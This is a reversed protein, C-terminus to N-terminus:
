ETLQSWTTSPIEFDTSGNNDVDISVTVNDGGTAELLLASTGTTFVIEGSELLGSEISLKPETVLHIDGFSSHEASFDLGLMYDDNAYDTITQYSIDSFNYSSESNDSATVVYSLNSSTLQDKFTQNDFDNSSVVTIDGNILNTAGSSVPETRELNTLTAHQTASWDIDFDNFDSLSGTDMFTQLTVDGHYHVDNQVCNDYNIGVYSETSTTEALETVTVKGETDCFYTTAVDTSSDLDVGLFDTDVDNGLNLLDAAFLHTDVLGESIIDDVNGASIAIGSLVDEIIEDSSSSSGCGALTLCLTSSLIISLPKKNIIM